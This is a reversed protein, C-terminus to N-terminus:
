NRANSSAKRGRRTKARLSSSKPRTSAFQRVLLSHSRAKAVQSSPPAPTRPSSSISQFQHRRKPQTFLAGYLLLALTIFALAGFSSDIPHEGLREDLAPAYRTHLLRRTLPVLARTILAGIVAGAALAALFPMPFFRHLYIVCVVTPATKHVMWFDDRPIKM